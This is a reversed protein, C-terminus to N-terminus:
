VHKADGELANFPAGNGFPIGLARCCAPCRQADMRSFIGPMYFRGRRECVALGDGAIMDPPDDWAAEALRHLRSGGRFQVWRSRWNDLPLPRAITTERESM